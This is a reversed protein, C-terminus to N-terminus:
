ALLSPNEQIYFVTLIGVIFLATSILGFLLAMKNGRKGLTLMVLFLFSSTAWLIIVVLLFIQILALQPIM